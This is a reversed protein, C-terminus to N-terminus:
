RNLFAGILAKQEKISQRNGVTKVNNRGFEHRRHYRYQKRQPIALLTAGCGTNKVVQYPPSFGHLCLVSQTQTGIIYRLRGIL